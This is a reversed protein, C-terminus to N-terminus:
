GAGVWTCSKTHKTAHYTINQYQLKYKTLIVPSFFCFVFFLLLFFFFPSKLPSSLLFSVLNMNDKEIARRKLKCSVCLTFLIQSLSNESGNCLIYAYPLAAFHTNTFLFFVCSTFAWRSWPCGVDISCFFM